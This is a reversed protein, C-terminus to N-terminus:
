GDPKSQGCDQNGSNGIENSPTLLRFYKQIEVAGVFAPDHEIGGRNRKVCPLIDAPDPLKRNSQLLDVGEHSKGISLLVKGLLSGIGGIESSIPRIIPYTNEIVLRSTINPTAYRDVNRSFEDTLNFNRKFWASSQVQSDEICIILQWNLKQSTNPYKVNFNKVQHRIRRFTGLSLIELMGYQTRTTSLSLISQEENFDMRRLWVGAKKKLVNRLEFQKKIRTKSGVYYSPGPMSECLLGVKQENVSEFQRIREEMLKQKEELKQMRRNLRRRREGRRQKRENRRKIAQLRIEEKIKQQEELRQKEELWRQEELRRRHELRRQEALMEQEKVMYRDEIRARKLSTSKFDLMFWDSYYCEQVRRQAHIKLEDDVQSINKRPKNQVQSRNQVQNKSQTQSLGESPQAFDKQGKNNDFSLRSKNFGSIAPPDQNDNQEELTSQRSIFPQHSQREDSQAYWGQACAENSRYAQNYHGCGRGFGSVGQTYSDGYIGAQNYHDHGRSAGRDVGAFEDHQYMANHAQSSNYERSIAESIAEDFEKIDVPKYKPKKLNAFVSQM